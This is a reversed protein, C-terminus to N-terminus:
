EPPEAPTEAPVEADAGDEFNVAANCLAAIASRQAELAARADGARLILPLEKRPHVDHANKPRRWCGTM